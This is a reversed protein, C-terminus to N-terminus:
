ENPKQGNLTHEPAPFERTTMAGVSRDHPNNVSAAPRQAQMDRTM